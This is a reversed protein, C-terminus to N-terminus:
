KFVIRDKSIMTGSGIQSIFERILNEERVNDGVLVLLYFSKLPTFPFPFDKLSFFRARNM